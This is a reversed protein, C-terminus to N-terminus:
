EGEFGTGRGGFHVHTRDHEFCIANQEDFLWIFRSPGHRSTPSVHALGRGLGRGALGEFFRAVPNLRDFKERGVVAVPPAV